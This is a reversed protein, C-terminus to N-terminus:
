NLRSIPLWTAGCVRRYDAAAMVISVTLSGANFAVKAQEALRPDAVLPLPLVPHGFPPVSGPVLGTLELLEHPTAFRAKKTELYARVALSDLKRDAPLVFLAWRHSGKIVLAKAGVSVPEGRALASQESTFTPEHTKIDYPVSAEDLMKRIGALVSASAPGDLATTERPNKNEATRDSHDGTM